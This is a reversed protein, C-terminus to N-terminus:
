YLLTTAGDPVDIVIFYKRWPTTAVVAQGGLDDFALLVGKHVRQASCFHRAPGQTGARWTPRSHSAAVQSPESARGNCSRATDHGTLHARRGFCLAQAAM